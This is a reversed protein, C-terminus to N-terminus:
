YGLTLADAENWSFKKEFGKTKKLISAVSRVLMDTEINVRRKLQYTKFLTNELTYPIITLWFGKEEVKSLTLSVGDIAISGQEVCLLLTEKSTSIFFDVQNSNHIIKEIVGIADIHGQVFHGDLSANAKLAPEIHVLDKYNELAVSNQTKQSLEVSFHTKSSEIATLCAGNVAISDGLKPNLDSEISLINNHFSKVKAIQNILGSFM